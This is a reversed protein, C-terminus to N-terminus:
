YNVVQIKKEIIFDCILRVCKEFKVKLLSFHERAIKRLVFQQTSINSEPRGIGVRLRPFEKQGCLDLINKMGRHGGSSGKERYRINGLPIDIDDYIILTKEPPIQFYQSFSLVAQGSLNMYTMPKLLYFSNGQYNGKYYWSNFKSTPSTLQFFQVLYDIIFFGINHYTEKYKDGPNGLGVITKPIM